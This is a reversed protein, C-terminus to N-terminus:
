IKRGSVIEQQLTLLENYIKQLREHQAPTLPMHAAISTLCAQSSGLTVGVVDNWAQEEVDDVFLGGPTDRAAEQVEAKSLRRRAHGVVKKASRKGKRHTENMRNRGWGGSTKAKAKKEAKDKQAM